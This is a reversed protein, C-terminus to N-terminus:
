DSRIGTVGDQVIARDPAAAACRRDGTVLPEVAIQASLSGPNRYGARTHPDNGM